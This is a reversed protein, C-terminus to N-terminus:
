MVLYQGIVHCSIPCDCFSRSKKCQHKKNKRNETPARINVAINGSCQCKSGTFEFNLSKSLKRKIIVQAFIKNDSLTLQISHDSRLNM